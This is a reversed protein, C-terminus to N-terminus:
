MKIDFCGKSITVLDCLNTTNLATFEFSGALIFNVRDDKTITVKGNLTLTSKYINDPYFEEYRCDNNIDSLLYEGVGNFNNLEIIVYKHPKDETHKATIRVISFNNSYSGFLQPSGYLIDIGPVFPEGNIKCYFSNYGKRWERTHKEKQLEKNVTTPRLFIVAIKKM